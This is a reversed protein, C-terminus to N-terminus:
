KESNNERSILLCKTPEVCRVTAARTERTMLAREGFSYGSTLSSVVMGLDGQSFLTSNDQILVEVRGEHIVYFYDGEEGQKCLIDGTKYSHFVASSEVLGLQQETFEAFSPLHRIFDRVSELTKNFLPNIFTFDGDPGRSYASRAVGPM